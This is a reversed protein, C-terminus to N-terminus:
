ASHVTHVELRAASQGMLVAGPYLPGAAPLGAGGAAAACFTLAPVAALGAARRPPESQAM